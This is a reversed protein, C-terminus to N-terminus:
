YYKTYKFLLVRVMRADSSLHHCNSLKETDRLTLIDPRGLRDGTEQAPSILVGFHTLPLLYDTGPRRQNTPGPPPPPWYDTKTGTTSDPHRLPSCWGDGGGGDDHYIVVVPVAVPPAGADVIDDRGTHAGVQGAQAPVVGEVPSPVDVVQVNHVLVVPGVHVAGHGSWLLVVDSQYDWGASPLRLIDPHEGTTPPLPLDGAGAVVVRDAHRVGALLATVLLSEDFM